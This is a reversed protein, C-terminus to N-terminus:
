TVHSFSYSIDCADSQQEGKFPEPIQIRMDDKEEVTLDDIAVRARHLAPRPNPGQDHLTSVPCM